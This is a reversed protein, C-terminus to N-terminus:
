SYREVPADSLFQDLAGFPMADPRELRAIATAWTEEITWPQSVPELRVLPLPQHPDLLKEARASGTRAFHESLVRRLWGQERPTTAAPRLFDHHYRERALSDAHVYALGGTMGSGFNGGIPGLVVVIGATMYECGHEGVGEVVALAGSNRVAFREGARGAIYLEGSTAGYLVTNGALVDGRRSAVPGATIAIRGGSLGKGVYDNAEGVLRFNVGSVLFAGFSQGAAGRFEFDFNRSRATGVRARRLLDGSFRAGVSRDSNAIVFRRRVPNTGKASALLRLLEARVGSYEDSYELSPSGHEVATELLGDFVGRPYDTRPKLRSVDGSIEQLSRAGLKALLQRVENAVGQFYAIVMEPKGTFRARYIEDQSAIGVPCTNLHCQRAMVCGIALLAATGFGFEDAGLLAALVVDRGSKFGGDVRLRVRRRFGARLLTNHADRLGVEWPLGTNKISSLPSAGTGGDFGSITIVDAGAKAVGAAIIGVGAGSVLKVGIRAGPNVARLDHILQALDEISYIDHHPPPSILAMGPAAHRLRAIYPTVKTAPIQGGEGPKSGQAMKIELEEAYVLYETTVGFRGSAVQKVKNGAEAENIYIDPDEGGEGTNSRAGLRNMAVALTRHAEPSLSGLSMAQTSFRRIIENSLEVEEIPIEKGPAFDLLDRAAVPERSAVFEAYAEYNAANPERVYKHMRRLLEPASSHREGHQRFRYFGADQLGPSDPAFAAHHRFLSDALLDALSKGGLVSGADEFYEACVDDDLGVIAFLQSNRYSSLTSVGMRALVKKLGADVANLYNAAGNSALGEAFELALYPYVGSAGVALLLAVHHTEIAQGTEVILPIAHGGAEVIGRWAASLALLTPLAARHKGSARDSLVIAGTRMPTAAVAAAVTKVRDLALQAFEVGGAAEFTFDIRAVEGLLGGDIAAMQGSDILPSKATARSGLHVDLSMVHAERLPDIPPNTVQAFSQKCYDWLPRRASSLFAPPADDGMSWVAEKGGVSLPQFLIRFQDETWGLAAALIKSEGLAARAPASDSVPAVASVPVGRELMVSRSSEAAGGNKRSASQVALRRRAVGRVLKEGSLITGAASDVILMEGPGLRDRQIVKKDELSALGVESGLLVLGDSTVSYRLPRLGNRDLKAGVRVGDSFVLAAPGDWPEQERPQAAFYDRIEADLSGNSEWAPPVLRLMASEPSDGLRLHMEFANDFSASDSVREELVRFWDAAGLEKRLDRERARLWRRNAGITNIEGNHAIFRFPQALRWTPQTNTSYRQHFIAFPVKFDPSALDRYFAPLQEPALLGKYVVTRSSLSAFYVGEMAEAEVRKRFFYLVREIEAGGGSQPVVFVQSVAPRTEAASRGLVAPAVPVERWLFVRLGSAEALSEIRLKVAATESHPLFVMGLGWVEPLEVGLERARARFFEQSIPTLLGAGDGSTGDADVGGRHSLRRLATLARDVVERSGTGSGLQAVFGVGCADHDIPLKHRRSAM